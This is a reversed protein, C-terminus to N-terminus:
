TRVEEFGEHTGHVCLLIAADKDRCSRYEFVGLTWMLCAEGELGLDGELRYRVVVTSRLM